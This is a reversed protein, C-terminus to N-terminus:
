PATGGQAFQQSNQLILAEVGESDDQIISMPCTTNEEQVIRSQVHASWGLNESLFIM